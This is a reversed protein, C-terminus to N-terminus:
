FMLTATLYRTDGESPLLGMADALIQTGYTQPELYLRSQM